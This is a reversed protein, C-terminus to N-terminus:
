NSPTYEPSNLMGFYHWSDYTGPEYFFPIHCTNVNGIYTFDNDQGDVTEIGQWRVGYYSDQLICNEITLSRHLLSRPQTNNENDNHCYVSAVGFVNTTGAVVCRRIIVNQKYHLGIGIGTGGPNITTDVFGDHKIICDEITVTYPSGYNADAHIPYKSGTTRITLNAIRSDTEAFITSRNVYDSEDDSIYNIICQHKNDGVYDVYNKTRFTENYTGKLIHIIYRNKETNDTIANNAANITTFYCDSGVYIHTTKYADGAIKEPLVVGSVGDTYKSWGLGNEFQVIGVNALTSTFRVLTEDSRPSFTCIAPIGYSEISRSFTGDSKYLCVAGWLGYVTYVENAEVKIYPTTRYNSGSNLNGSSANLYGSVVSDPNYMNLPASSVDDFYLSEIPVKYGYPQYKSVYDGEEVQVTDIDANKVSIRIYADGSVPVFSNIELARLPTKSANYMWANFHHVIQYNKGVEVPIYESTSYNAGPTTNGNSGIYKGTEIANKNFLNKGQVIIGSKDFATSAKGDISNVWPEIEQSFGFTNLKSTLVSIRCYKANAPAIAEAYSASEYVVGSGSIFAGSINTDYFAIGIPSSVTEAFNVVRIKSGPIVKFFDSGSWSSASSRAGTSANTYYGSVWAQPFYDPFLYKNTNDFASKLDGVMDAPAAASSSMLTRDLPPSNPNTIHENLWAATDRAAAAEAATQATEAATQATEAATRATEAATQATEADEKASQAQENYYKANNEFYEGSTVPTGNQEGVAYGEAKLGNAEANAMAQVWEERTGTYGEAVAIAYADVPGLDVERRAM